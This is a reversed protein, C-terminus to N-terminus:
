GLMLMESRVLFQLSGAGARLMGLEVSLLAAKGFDIQCSGDRSLLYGGLDSLDPQHGVLLISECKRQERLVLMATEPTMGCALRADLMVPQAALRAQVIRATEAARLVPSSIIVGFPLLHRRCFDGVAAAQERGLRTLARAQDTTQVDEAEGHRLLYLNM